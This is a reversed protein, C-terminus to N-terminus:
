SILPNDVNGHDRLRGHWAFFQDRPSIFHSQLCGRSDSHGQCFSLVVPDVAGGLRAAVSEATRGALQRPRGKTGPLTVGGGATRWGQVGPEMM